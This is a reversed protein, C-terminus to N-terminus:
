SNESRLVFRPFYLERLGFFALLRLQVCKQIIFFNFSYNRPVLGFYLDRLRVTSFIIRQRKDISKVKVYSSVLNAVVAVVNM